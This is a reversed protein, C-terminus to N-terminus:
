GHSTLNAAPESPLIKPLPQDDATQATLTIKRHAIKRLERREM